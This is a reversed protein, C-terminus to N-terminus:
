QSFLSKKTQLIKRHVRHSCSYRLHLTAEFLANIFCDPPSNKARPERYGDAGVLLYFFVDLQIDKKNKYLIITPANKCYAFISEFPPEQCCDPPSNGGGHSAQRCAFDM